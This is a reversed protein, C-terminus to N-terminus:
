HIRVRLLKTSGAADALRIAFHSDHPTVVVAILGHKGRVAKSITASRSPVLDVSVGQSCGQALRLYLRGGASLHTIPRASPWHM